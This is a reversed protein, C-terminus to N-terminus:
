LQNINLDYSATLRELNFRQKLYYTTLPNAINLSFDAICRENACYELHDYNKILYGDAKADKV